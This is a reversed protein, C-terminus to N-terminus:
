SNHHLGGKSEQPMNDLEVAIHNLLDDMLQFAPKLQEHVDDSTWLALNLAQTQPLYHCINDYPGTAPITHTHNPM